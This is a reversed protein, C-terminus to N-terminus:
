ISYFLKIDSDIGAKNSHQTAAYFIIEQATGVFRFGYNSGRQFITTVGGMQNFAGTTTAFPGGNSTLTGDVGNQTYSILHQLTDKIPLTISNSGDYQAIGASATGGWHQIGQISNSSLFDRIIRGAINDLKAVTFASLASTAAITLNDDVDDCYISPKGNTYQIVGGSAITPQESAVLSIANNANGSQDYWTTIFGDGSGVHAQLAGVDLENNAGYGINLLAGGNSERVEILSGTYSNSLRRLSYASNSGPYTDLIGVFPSPTSGGSLSHRRKDRINRIGRISRM